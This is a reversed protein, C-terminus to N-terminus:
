DDEVRLELTAPALAPSVATVTATGPTHGARLVALCRGRHASRRMTGYPEHCCLDGNDMGILRAAGLVEIGIPDPAHPVRVGDEDVITVTVHALDQDDARLTTRDVSVALRAPEAATKLAHRALENGAQDRSVAELTGPAFPLFFSAIRNPCDAMVREGKSAGDLFLEVSHGNSFVWVEVMDHQRVPPNWHDALPPFSWDASEYSDGERLRVAARVMPETRRLSAHWWARPKPFGASDIPTATWGRVPWGGAAEGLYDIGAWLFQGAVYPAERVEVWPNAAHVAWSANTRHQFFHFAETAIFVREPMADHYAAYWQDHYNLGVLDVAEAIAKVNQAKKNVPAAWLDPTNCFPRLGVTTPRTPDLSKVHRALRACVEIMGPTGQQEVENGVSWVIVSPHNRDRLVLAELDQRWWAEFSDGSCGERWKDFAEDIVFLGLRDCLDLLAPDPPNHSTRIADFGLAKLQRLRREWGAAFFAAGLCGLDHHLCVGKMKRPTGNFVFGEGPTFRFHRFGFPEALCDVEAEGVVVRLRAAYLSPSEPSWLAPRAVAGRLTGVSESGPQIGVEDSSLPGCVNGDPDLIEGELRARVAQARRNRVTVQVSATAQQPTVDPMTVYVGWPAVAVDNVTTLWVRRYLGAGCYWRDGDHATNDCRVALLQEGDQRLHETVDHIRTAYGSPRVGLSRGNVWVEGHRYAGDLRLLYRKGAVPRLRRRYWGVHARRQFGQAKGQKMQPDTPCQIAWDHPLRVDQWDSDDLDCELARDTEGLLFRWGTDLPQERRTNSRSPPIAPTM